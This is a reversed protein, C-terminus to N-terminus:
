KSTYSQVSSAVDIMEEKTLDKSALYFTAGNHNWELTDGDLAGITYGLEVPEGEVNITQNGSVPSTTATEQVITYTKDGGYTMIVRKGSDVDVEEQELLESGLTEEPYVVALEEPESMSAVPVDSEVSAMNKEVNFDEKNFTPDKSFDAFQVEVLSQMDQDFVKVMVPEYSKKDFYIEQFPLSKNNQYNTKTKFVYYDDDAQFESESDKIIDNILSAYLYPQSTNDPWASQFKFSKNLAPTLVFVGDTNKLIIQSGKKDENSNLEVKYYDKKKHWVAINYSQEDEGTKMTMKANTKYGDMKEAQEELNKVVDEKSKEGCAALFVLLLSAFILISYRLKM